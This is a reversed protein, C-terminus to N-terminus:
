VCRSTYLLCVLFQAVQQCLYVRGEVKQEDGDDDAVDAGGQLMVEDVLVVDQGPHQGLM